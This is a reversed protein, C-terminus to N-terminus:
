LKKQETTDTMEEDQMLLALIVTDAIRIGQCTLALHDDVWHLFGEQIYREIVVKRWANNSQAILSDVWNREMGKTLRLGLMFSEGASADSDLIEVDLIQPLTSASLYESLRPTNKWRRGSLHGSASPGFPWWSKNTWYSINHKCEYGKKAFNSIEYQSYGAHQLVEIVRIFMSAELEHEIRQVEGRDLRTRLPTNPEYILSYCSMHTPSLAISQELDVLLQDMTQSPIAYIVDLNIDQIGVSRVCEVAKGVNEPDHWRELSKLLTPHFSQAGISIRNVGNRVMSEAKELTITEPNAEVTWECQSSRPLYKSVAQLMNDFLQPEFLTPTGGGIFITDLTGLHGGVYELEKSLQLVFPEYQYEAGAISFFDCYHCKHFCFPVHIYVSKVNKADPLWAEASKQTDLDSSKGQTTHPFNTFHTLPIPPPTPSM